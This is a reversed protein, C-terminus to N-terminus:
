QQLNKAFFALVKEWADKAAEEKYMTSSPNAFAHDAGPYIVIDKEHNAEELDKEFKHVSEVPIGKDAGGFIGLVPGQLKSLAAPGDYQLHGYYIVTADMATLLSTQLAFAGGLCWGIVGMKVVVTTDDDTSKNGNFTTQLYDVAEQLRQMLLPKDQLATNMTNRAEKPTDVPPQTGYLNIALAAYGQGALQRAVAKIQDNLGWWEHIVVIAGQVTGSSPTVLCADLNPLSVLKDDAVPLAPPIKSAATDVPRDTAHEKAMAAVYKQDAQEESSPLSM